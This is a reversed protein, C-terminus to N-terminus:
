VPIPLKTKVVNSIANQAGTIRAIGVGVLVLGLLAEGIRLFWSGLNFGKLVDHALGAAGSVAGIAVAGAPTKQAVQGAAGAIQGVANLGSPPVATQAQQKTGFPGMVVQWGKYSGNSVWANYQPSGVTASVIKSNSPIQPNLASGQSAGVPAVVFWAIKPTTPM